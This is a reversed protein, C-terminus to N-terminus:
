FSNGRIRGIKNSRYYKKPPNFRTENFRIEDACKLSKNKHADDDWFRQASKPAM